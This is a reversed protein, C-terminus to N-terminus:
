RPDLLAEGDTSSDSSVLLAGGDVSDEESSNNSNLPQREPSLAESSWRGDRLHVGGPSDDLSGTRQLAPLPIGHVIWRVIDSPRRRSPDNHMDDPSETFFDQLWPEVNSDVSYTTSRTSATSQSVEQEILGNKAADDEDNDAKNHDGDSGKGSDDRTGRRALQEHFKAFSVRLGARLYARSQSPSHEASSNYLIDAQLQPPNVSPHSVQPLDTILPLVETGHPAPIPSPSTETTVSVQSEEVSVQEQTSGNIDTM